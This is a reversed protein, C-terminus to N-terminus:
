HGLNMTVAVPLYGKRSARMVRQSFVHEDLTRGFYRRWAEVETRGFSGYGMLLNIQGLRDKNGIIFGKM